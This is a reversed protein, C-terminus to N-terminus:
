KEIYLKMVLEAYSKEDLKLGTFEKWNKLCSIKDSNICSRYKEQVLYDPLDPEIGTSKHLSEIKKYCDENMLCEVYTELVENKVGDPIKGTLEKLKEIGTFDMYKLMNLFIDKVLQKPAKIGKESLLSIHEADEFRKKTIATEYAKQALYQPVRKGTEHVIADLDDLLNKDLYKEYQDHLFDNDLEVNWEAYRILQKMNDIQKRRVYQKFKKNILKGPLEPSTDSILSLESIKQFQDKELYSSFCDQLFKYNLKPEIEAIEKLVKFDEIKGEKLYLQYKKQVRDELDVGKSRAFDTLSDISM